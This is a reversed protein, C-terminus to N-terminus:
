SFLPFWQKCWDDTMSGTHGSFVMIITMYEPDIYVKPLTFREALDEMQSFGNGPRAYYALYIAGAEIM